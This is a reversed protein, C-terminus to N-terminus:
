KIQEYRKQIKRMQIIEYVMIVCVGSVVITLIDIIMQYDQVGNVLKFPFDDEPIRVTLSM